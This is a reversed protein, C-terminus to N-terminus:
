CCLPNVPIRHIPPTTVHRERPTTRDQHNILKAFSCTILSSNFNSHDSRTRTTFERKTIIGGFYIGFLSSDITDYCFLVVFSLLSSVLSSISFHSNIGFSCITSTRIVCPGGNPLPSSHRGLLFRAPHTSRNRTICSSMM